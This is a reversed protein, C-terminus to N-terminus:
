TVLFMQVRPSRVPDNKISIAYSKKADPWFNIRSLYYWILILKKRWFNAIMWPTIYFWWLKGFNSHRRLQLMSRWSIEFKLKHSLGQSGYQNKYLDKCTRSCLFNCARMKASNIHTRARIKAFILEINVWYRMIMFKLNRSYRHKWHPSIWSKTIM